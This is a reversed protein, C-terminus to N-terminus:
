RCAQVILGQKTVMIATILDESGNGATLVKAATSLSAM